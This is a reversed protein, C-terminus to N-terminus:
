DCIRFTIRSLSTMRIQKNPRYSKRPCTTFLQQTWTHTSHDKNNRANARRTEANRSYMPQRCPELESWARMSPLMRRVASGKKSVVGMPRMRFRNLLSTSVSSLVRGCFRLAQRAQKNPTITWVNHRHNNTAQSAQVPTTNDESNKTTNLETM